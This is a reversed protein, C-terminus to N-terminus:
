PTFFIYLQNHDEPAFVAELAGGDSFIYSRRYRSEGEIYQWFDENPSLSNKQIAAQDFLPMVAYTDALNSTCVVQVSPRDIESVCDVLIAASLERYTDVVEYQKSGQPMPEAFVITGLLVLGLLIKKM